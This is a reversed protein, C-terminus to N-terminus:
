ELFLSWTWSRTADAGMAYYPKPTFGCAALDVKDMLSMAFSFTAKPVAAYLRRAFPRRVFPPMDHRLGCKDSLHKQWYRDLVSTRTKRAFASM